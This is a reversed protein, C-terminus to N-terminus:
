KSYKRKVKFYIQYADYGVDNIKMFNIGPDQNETRYFTNFTGWQRESDSALEDEPKEGEELYIIREDETIGALVDRGYRFAGMDPDDPLPIFRVGIPLLVTIVTDKNFHGTVPVFSNEDSTKAFLDDNVFIRAEGTIWDPIRIEIETKEPVEGEFRIVYKKFDPKEAHAGAIDNVTQKANNESSDQLLGTMTDEYLHLKFGDENLDSNVYQGVFIKQRDKYFIRKNMGANAQVMTGHCCFFADRAGAWNKRSGAKMPLFYTLLGSSTKHSETQVDGWYSQALIGNAMNYEIYQLYSAEGTEKFLFDALRIMNYVTCHEQNKDGLRKKLKFKPTWVEGQTQGGTAFYGRDTVACKWYAKVIDLWKKEGTVEYTRACGLIEPITTNAHMNTLADKGCLLPDFLRGRYYRSLLTQYKGKKGTYELLDAWVELMGSTEFDLINDFEERTYKGSWDYFWDAFRDAVELAEKNGAYKYMDVLGMFTKHLTYQPAWIPRGQGIWTLDKEPISGVWEGGNDKQCIALEHVIADAKAKVEIDGTEEIIFAAASLWHGLFHGRLQCTSSEWGGLTKTDIERNTFRGAELNFNRLLHEDSLSMMYTRNDSERKLLRGDRLSVEKGRTGSIM